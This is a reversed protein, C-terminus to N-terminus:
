RATAGGEGIRAVHSVNERDDADAGPGTALWADLIESLLPASTLRLGVALANPDSWRRADRATYADTCLAARGGGQERRDLGRAPGAACSRRTPGGPRSTM